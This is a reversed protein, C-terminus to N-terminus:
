INNSLLIRGKEPPIYSDMPVFKNMCLGFLGKLVSNANVIDTQM